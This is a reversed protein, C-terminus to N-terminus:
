SNDSRSLCSAATAPKLVFAVVLVGFLAFASWIALAFMFSDSVEFFIGTFAASAASGMSM